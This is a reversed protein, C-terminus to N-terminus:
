LADEYGFHDGHGRGTRSRYMVADRALRDTAKKTQAVADALTFVPVDKPVDLAGLEESLLELRRALGEIVYASASGGSWDHYGRRDGAVGDRDVPQPTAGLRTYGVPDHEPSELPRECM